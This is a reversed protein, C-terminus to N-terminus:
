PLDKISMSLFAGMEPPKKLEGVLTEISRKAFIEAGGEYPLHIGKHILERQCRQSLSTAFHEILAKNKKSKHKLTFFGAEYVFHFQRM